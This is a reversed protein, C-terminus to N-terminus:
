FPINMILQVNRGIEPIEVHRYYSIHNYYKTNAINDVSLSLQAGQSVFPLKARAAINFLCAGQTPAENRGTRNQAAIIHTGASLTIWKHQWEVGGRINMPPSLNLPIHENLNYTYIYDGNLNVSFGCPLKVAATFEAGMMCAEVDVYQWIQAADPLLSPKASPQLIIYNNFWNAYPTIEISFRDHLFAYTADFQWGVESDLNSDGKEHRFSGHHVGNATLEIATPLRFSRGINMKIQHSYITQQIDWVFGMSGSIDGYNKDIDKSRKTYESAASSYEGVWEFYEEINKDYYEDAKINGIDYRIGGSVIFNDLLKYEGIWGAGSTMRRYSPMLFTYGGITNDQYQFDWILSSEFKDSHLIKASLRSSYTNLIFELEKDPDHTPPAVSGYHTHFKSWEERHNNQYGLDWELWISDWVYKNKMSVKFHNVFSYPLDIDRFNDDDVINLATPIGHAGPFFGMKQYVNSLIINSTFRGSRYLTTFSGNREFGATNNLRGDTIPMKATMYVIEDTTIRCDAYHQESYRGKIFWKDHKARLMISGGLLDNVSKAILSAEGSIGNKIPVIEPIIEIVGGVADSGYMLSSPGKRIVVKDINFADIELGHDAGWQQGEQKVGNEVVSVRNFAMGRIMPKSVGSGISMSNVGPLVKLTEMFNGTFNKQFMVKDVVNLHFPSKAKLKNEKSEGIVIVPELTKTKLSDTKQAFTYNALLLFIFSLVTQMNM